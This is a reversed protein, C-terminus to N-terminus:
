KKLTIYGENELNNQIKDSIIEKYFIEITSNM